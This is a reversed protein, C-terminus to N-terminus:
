PDFRAPLAEGVNASNEALSHKSKITAQSKVERYQTRRAPVPILLPNGDREIYSFRCLRLAHPPGDSVGLAISGAVLFRIAAGM